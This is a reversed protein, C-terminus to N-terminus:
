FIIHSRLLSWSESSGNKYQINWKLIGINKVVYMEASTVSPQSATTQYKLDYVNNYTINNVVVTSIPNILKRPGDVTYFQDGDTSEKLFTNAGWTTDIDHYYFHYGCLILEENSASLSYRIKFFSTEYNM